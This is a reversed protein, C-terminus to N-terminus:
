PLRGTHVHWHRRDQPICDGNALWSISTPSCVCRSPATVTSEQLERKREATMELVNDVCQAYVDAMAQQEQEAALVYAEDDYERQKAHFVRNYSQKVSKRGAETEARRLPAVRAIM